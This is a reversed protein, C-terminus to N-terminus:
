QLLDAFTSLRTLVYTDGRDQKLIVADHNGLANVIWDALKSRSKCEIRYKTGWSSTVCLDGKEVGAGSLPVRYCELGREIFYLRASNELRYGKQKPARGGSM